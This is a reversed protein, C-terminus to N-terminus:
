LPSADRHEVKVLSVDLTRGFGGVTKHQPQTLSGLEVTDELQAFVKVFADAGSGMLAQLSYGHASRLTVPERSPGGPVKPKNVNPGFIALSKRNWTGWLQLNRTKLGHHRRSSRRPAGCSRSKPRSEPTVGTQPFETHLFWILHATKAAM